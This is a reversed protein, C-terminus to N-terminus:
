GPKFVKTMWRQAGTGLLVSTLTVTPHPFLSSVTTLGQCLSEGTGQMIMLTRKTGVEMLHWGASWEGGWRQTYSQSYGM